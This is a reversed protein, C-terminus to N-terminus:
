WGSPKNFTGASDALEDPFQCAAVATSRIARYFTAASELGRAPKRYPNLLGVPRGFESAVMRIPTILDADNSIVIATEFDGRFCDLLLWSALNVDSGKEETKIVNAYKAGRPGPSALRMSKVDERFSGFHISVEPCTRLARLFAEQRDRVNPDDPRAKTRATFYRVRQIHNKPLITRCLRVIDLWKYPTGRVAGYYLNFGDVYVNTRSFADAM